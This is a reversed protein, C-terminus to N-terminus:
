STTKGTPQRTGDESTGTEAPTDTEAPHAEYRQPIKMGIRRCREIVDPDPQIPLLNEEFAVAAEERLALVRAGDYAPVGTLAVAYLHGKVRQIIGAATRISKKATAELSLGTIVGERVLLLAKDGDDHELFKFSGYLGDSQERFIVGHGVVDALGDRHGFKLQVERERGTAKVQNAFAGPVWEETYPVGKPVGGRGDNHVIREGYPVIRVDATRGDGPTLEAAYARVILGEQADNVPGPEPPTEPDTM